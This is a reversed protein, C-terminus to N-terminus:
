GATNKESLLDAGAALWLWGFLAFSVMLICAFISNLLIQYIKKGVIKYIHEAPPLPQPQAPNTQNASRPTSKALV